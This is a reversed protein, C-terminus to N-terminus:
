VKESSLVTLVKFEYIRKGCRNYVVTNNNCGKKLDKKEMLFPSLLNEIDGPYVLNELSGLLM